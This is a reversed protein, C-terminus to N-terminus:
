FLLAEKGKKVVGRGLLRPGMKKTQKSITLTDGIRACVPGDLLTIIIQVKGLKDVHARTNCAHINIIIQEGENLKVYNEESIESLNKILSYKIILKEYVKFGDYDKLDNTVIVKNGILSDQTTLGPDLGLQLAILGGPVANDLINKDSQIGQVKSVLPRYSWMNKSDNRLKRKVGPLITVTDDRKIIGKTISGGVVGGILNEISVNQRNVNFSRVITMNGITDIERVPKPILTCIYELLVDINYGFEAVMPIVPAKSASTGRIFNQLDVIKETAKKKDVMDLKNMCVIHTPLDVISTVILHEATQPAPISNNNASEMLITTDVIGTCNLMTNMLQNHGPCDVFSVHRVLVLEKNCYKCKPDFTTSSFSQYCQPSKCDECKFIKANAYGLRISMGREQEKSFKQTKIGTIRETTKSKGNSVHGIMAINITPQLEEINNNM